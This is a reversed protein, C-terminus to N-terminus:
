PLRFLHPWAGSSRFHTIVQATIPVLVSLWLRYAETAMGHIKVVVTEPSNYSSPAPFFRPTQMCYESFKEGFKGSLFKEEARIVFRLYIIFGVFVLILLSVSKFFCVAALALCFSGFYLPNRTISYPGETQLESDKRGGVYLTSWIRFSVYLMFLLWGCADMLIGPLSGNEIVPKSLAIGVLVPPVVVVGM